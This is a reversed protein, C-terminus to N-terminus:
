TMKSVFDDYDIGLQSLILKAFNHKIDKNGHIPVPATKGSKPYKVKFHSGNSSIPVCGYALLMKFFDKASVIPLKNM